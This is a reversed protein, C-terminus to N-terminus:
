DGSKEIPRREIGATGTDDPRIRDVKRGVGNEFIAAAQLHLHVEWRGLKREFPCGDDCADRVLCGGELGVLNGPVFAQGADSAGGAPGNGELSNGSATM